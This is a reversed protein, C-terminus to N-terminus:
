HLVRDGLFYMEFAAVHAITMRLIDSNDPFIEYIRKACVVHSWLINSINDDIDQTSRDRKTSKM